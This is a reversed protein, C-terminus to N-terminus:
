NPGRPWDARVGMEPVADKAAPQVIIAVEAKAVFRVNLGRPCIDAKLPLSM